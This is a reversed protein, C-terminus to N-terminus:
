ADAEPDIEEPALQRMIERAAAYDDEDVFLRRPFDSFGVLTDAIPGDMEITEIGEAALTAKMVSILVVNPTRMLEKM